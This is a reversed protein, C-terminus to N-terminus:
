PGTFGVAHNGAMRPNILVFDEAKLAFVPEKESTQVLTPVVVLTTTTHLTTQALAAGALTVALIGPQFVVAKM